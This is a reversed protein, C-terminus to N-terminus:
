VRERCSARGIQIVYGDNDYHSPKILEVFFKEKEKKFSNEM